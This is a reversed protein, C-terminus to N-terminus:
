EEIVLVVVNNESVTGVGHGEAFTFNNDDIREVPSFDSGGDIEDIFADVSERDEFKFVFDFTYMIDGEQIAAFGEVMGVEPVFTSGEGIARVTYGNSIYWSAWYRVEPDEFEDIVPDDVLTTEETTEVTTEETTEETTVETTTESATTEESTEEATTTEETTTEVTTTTEEEDNDNNSGSSCSVVSVMLATALIAAVLRKTAIAKKM